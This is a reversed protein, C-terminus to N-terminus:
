EGDVVTETEDETSAPDPDTVSAKPALKKIGGHAGRLIEVDPYGDFLFKLTPYLQPLTMPKGDDLITEKAIEEALKTAPIKEGVKLAEIRTSAKEFITRVRDLSAAVHKENHM